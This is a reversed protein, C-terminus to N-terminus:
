RRRAPPREHFRVVKRLRNSLDGHRASRIVPDAVSPRPPPPPEVYHDDVWGSVKIKHPNRSLLSVLYGERKIKKIVDQTVVDVPAPAWPGTIFLDIEHIAATEGRSIAQEVESFVRRLHEEVLLHDASTIENYRRRAAELSLM